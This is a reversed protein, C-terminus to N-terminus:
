GNFHVTVWFFEEQSERSTNIIKVHTEQLENIWDENKDHITAINLANNRLDTNWGPELPRM